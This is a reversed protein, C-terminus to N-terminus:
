FDQKIVFEPHGLPVDRVATCKDDQAWDFSRRLECFLM